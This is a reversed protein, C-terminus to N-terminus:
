KLIQILFANKRKNQIKVYMEKMLRLNNIKNNVLVSIAIMM